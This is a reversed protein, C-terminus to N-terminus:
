KQKITQNNSQKYNERYEHERSFCLFYARQSLHLHLRLNLRLRVEREKRTSDIYPPYIVVWRSSDVDEGYNAGFVLNPRGSGKSVASSM